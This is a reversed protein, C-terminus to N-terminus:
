ARRLGPRRRAGTGGGDRRLAPLGPPLPDPLNPRGGHFPRLPGPGRGAGGGSSRRRLQPGVEGQGGQRHGQRDPPGVTGEGQGEQQRERGRAARADGRGGPTTRGGPATARQAVVSPATTEGAAFAAGDAAATRESHQGPDTVSVGSGNSRGTEPVGRVNKDVHGLEHGIIERSASAGAGLFVHTGITMAQAGMAATARQAVPSDHLRTASLDNQYFSEADARLSGSLPRSPSAVAADLLSRQEPGGSEAGGEHGCGAGHVHQDQGALRAVVRNGVSRQLAMVAEPTVPRAVPAAAPVAARAPLPGTPAKRRPQEDKAHM